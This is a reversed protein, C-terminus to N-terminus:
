KARKVLIYCDRRESYHDYRWEGSAMLQNVIEIEKVEKISEMQSMKLQAM